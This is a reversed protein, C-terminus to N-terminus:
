SEKPLYAGLDRGGRRKVNHEACPRCMRFTDGRLGVVRTAPANCPIYTLTSAVSAEECCHAAAEIMSGGSRARVM